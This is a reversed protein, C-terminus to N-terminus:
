FLLCGLPLTLRSCTSPRCVHGDREPQNLGPPAALLPCERVGQSLMGILDCSLDGSNWLHISCFQPRSRIQESSCSRSGGGRSSGLLVARSAQAGGLEPLPEVSVSLGLYNNACFNLVTGARGQVRIAAAQPSTIVREAKWTGAERIGELEM